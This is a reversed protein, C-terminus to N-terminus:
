SKVEHVHRFAFFTRNESVRDKLEEKCPQRAKTYAHVRIYGVTPTFNTEIFFLWM